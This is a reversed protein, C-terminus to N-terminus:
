KRVEIKRLADVEERMYGHPYFRRASRRLPHTSFVAHLLTNPVAFILWLIRM